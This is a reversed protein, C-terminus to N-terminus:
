GVAGVATPHTTNGPLEFKKELSDRPRKTEDDYNLAVYASEEKIRRAPSQHTCPALFCDMNLWQGLENTLTVVLIM